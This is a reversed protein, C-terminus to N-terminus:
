SGVSRPISRRIPSRSASIRTARSRRFSAFGSRGEYNRLKAWDIEGLFRAALRGDRGYVFLAPLVGSWTPDVAEIVRQSGAEQIRYVRGRLRIKRLFNEAASEAEPEDASITVLRLGGGSRKAFDRLLPLEERCPECWTAWFSVLTVHGRNAQLMRHYGAADLSHLRACVPLACLLLLAAARWIV